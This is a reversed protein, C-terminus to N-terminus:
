AGDQFAREHETPPRQAHAIDALSRSVEVRWREDGERLRGEEESRRAELARYVRNFDDSSLGGESELLEALVNGLMHLAGIPDDAGRVFADKILEALFEVVKGLEKGGRKAQELEAVLAPVDERAHAIFEADAIQCKGSTV